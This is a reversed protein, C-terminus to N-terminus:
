VYLTNFSAPHITKLLSHKLLVLTLKNDCVNDVCTGAQKDIKFLLM